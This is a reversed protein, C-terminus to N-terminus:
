GALTQLLKKMVADSGANAVVWNRGAEGLATRWGADDLLAAAAAAFAPPDDPSVCVGAGSDETLRHLMSGPLATAIFPRGSAMIAFVKSPVTADAAEPLQPVLHVDGEAMAQAMREQPALPAFSVNRLHLEARRSRLEAEQNGSGRIVIRAAPRLVELRAAMALVQGIGQKRGLNGSYLLTPSTGDPRPLPRIANTDVQPPLVTIPSTTGNAVLTDRMAESLAVVADTRNFTASEGWRLIGDLRGAVGIKLAGALDSQIDHVICVHRGGPAVFYKAAHVILFSPCLSIVTEHHLSPETYRCKMASVWLLGEAWLRAFAGGGGVPRIPLRRVTVGNVTERDRNGLRYEPAVRMEPYHPRATLVTVYHGQAALWEAISTMVPASGIKEPAYFQTLMLIRRREM